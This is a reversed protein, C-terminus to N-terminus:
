ILCYSIKLKVVWPAAILIKYLVLSISTMRLSIISGVLVMSLIREGYVGWGCGTRGGFKILLASWFADEGFWDLGDVGFSGWTWFSPQEDWM